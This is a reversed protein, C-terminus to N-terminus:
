GLLMKSLVLRYLAMKVDGGIGPGFLLNLFNGEMGRDPYFISYGMIGLPPPSTSGIMWLNKKSLKQFFCILFVLSQM